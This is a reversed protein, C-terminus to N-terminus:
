SPPQPEDGSSPPNRRELPQPVYPGDIPKTSGPREPTTGPLTPAIPPLWDDIYQTTPATAVTRLVATWLGLAVAICGITLMLFRLSFQFKPTRLILLYAAGLLVITSALAAAALLTEHWSSTSLQKREFTM